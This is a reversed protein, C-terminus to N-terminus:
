ALRGTQGKQSTKESFKEWLFNVILTHKSVSFPSYALYFGLFSRLFKLWVPGGSFFLCLFQVISSM